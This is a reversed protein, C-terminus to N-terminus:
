EETGDQTVPEDAQGEENRHEHLLIAGLHEGHHQEDEAEEDRAIFVADRIHTCESNSQHQVMRARDGDLSNNVVENGDREAIENASHEQHTDHIVGHIAWKQVFCLM